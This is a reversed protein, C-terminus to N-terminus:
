RRDKESVPQPQDDRVEVASIEASEFAIEISNRMQELEQYLEKADTMVMSINMSEESEVPILVEGTVPIMVEESTKEDPEDQKSITFSPQLVHTFMPLIRTRSEQRTFENSLPISLSQLEQEEQLHERLTQLTNQDTSDEDSQYIKDLIQLQLDIQKPRNNERRSEKLENDLNFLFSLIM